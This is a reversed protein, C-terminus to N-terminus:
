GERSNYFQFVGIFAIVLWAIWFGMSGVGGIFDLKTAGLIILLLAASYGIAAGAMFHTLWDLPKVTDSFNLLLTFVASIIPMIYLVTASYGVFTLVFFFQIIVLLTMMTWPGTIFTWLNTFVNGTLATFAQTSGSAHEFFRRVSSTTQSVFDDALKQAYDKLEGEVITQESTAQGSSNIPIRYKRCVVITTNKAKNELDQKFIGGKTEVDKTYEIEYKEEAENIQQEVQRLDEKAQEYMKLAAEKAEGFKQRDLDSKARKVAKQASGLEKKKKNLGAKAADTEKAFMQRYKAKAYGALMRKGKNIAAMVHPDQRIKTTKVERTWRGTVASGRSTKGSTFKEIEKYYAIFGMSRQERTVIKRTADTSGDDWRDFVYGGRTKEVSLTFSSNKDRYTRAPTVLEEKDIKVKVDAITAEIIIKVKNSALATAQGGAQGAGQGASQNDEYDAQGGGQSGGSDRDGRRQGSAQGQRSQGSPSGAPWSSRSSASPPAGPGLDSVIFVATLEIDDDVRIEVPNQEYLFERDKWGRFQYERGNKKFKPNIEIFHRSNVLVKITKPTVARGTFNEIRGWDHVVDFLFEAEISVEDTDEALITISKIKESAWEAAQGAKEATWGAAKGAYSQELDKRAWDKYPKVKEKTRDVARGAMEATREVSKKLRPSDEYKERAWETTKEAAERGTESFTKPSSAPYLVGSRKEETQRSAVEVERSQRRIEEKEREIKRALEEAEREEKQRKREQEEQEYRAREGQKIAEIKQDVRSGIRSYEDKIRQNEHRAQRTAKADRTKQNMNEYVISVVSDSNFGDVTAMFETKSKDDRIGEWRIFKYEDGDINAMSIAHLVYYEDIIELTFPTQAPDGNIFFGIILPKATNSDIARIKIQRLKNQNWDAM